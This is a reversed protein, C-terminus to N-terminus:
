SYSCSFHPLLASSIQYKLPAHPLPSLLPLPSWFQLLKLSTLLQLSSSHGELSCACGRPKLSSCTCGRACQCERQCLGLSPGWPQFARVSSLCHLCFAWFVTSGHHVQHLSLSTVLSWFEEGNKKLEYSPSKVEWIDHVVIIELRASAWM